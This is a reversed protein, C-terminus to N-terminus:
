GAGGIGSGGGGIGIGTEPPPLTGTTIPPPATPPPKPPPNKLPPKKPPDLPLMMTDDLEVPPEVEVELPPDDLELELELLEEDLLEDELLLEPLEEEEEDPPFGPM